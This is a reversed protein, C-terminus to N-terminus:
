AIYKNIKKCHALIQFLIISRQEIFMFKMHEKIKVINKRRNKVRRFIFLLFFTEVEFYVLYENM